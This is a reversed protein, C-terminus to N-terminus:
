CCARGLAGGPDGEPASVLRVWASYPPDPGAAPWSLAPWDECGIDRLAGALGVKVQQLRQLEDGVAGGIAAVVVGLVDV